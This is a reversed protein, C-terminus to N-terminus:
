ASQFGGPGGAEPEPTPDEEPAPDEGQQAEGLAKEYASLVAAELRTRMENNIPHAIDQYTGDPRRRSPMSVFFGTNGEIVKLGRVVFEDDFTVNAFAKLRDESRISIKVETIKVLPAVEECRGSGGPIARLRATRVWTDHSGGRGGHGGAKPM